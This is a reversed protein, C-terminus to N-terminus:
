FSMFSSSRPMLIGSRIDRFPLKSPLGSSIEVFAKKRVESPFMLSLPLKELM